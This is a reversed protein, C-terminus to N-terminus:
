LTLIAPLAPEKKLWTVKKVKKVVRHMSAIGNQDIENAARDTLGAGHRERPEHLLREIVRLKAVV